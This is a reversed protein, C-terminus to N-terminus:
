EIETCMKQLAKCAGPWAFRKNGSDQNCIGKPLEANLSFYGRFYYSTSSTMRRVQASGICEPNCPSRADETSFGSVFSGLGSLPGFQSDNCSLCGVVNKNSDFVYIQGPEFRVARNFRRELNAPLGAAQSGEESAANKPSSCATGVLSFFLGVVVFLNKM